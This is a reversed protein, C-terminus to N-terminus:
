FGPKSAEGVFISYPYLHVRNIQTQFSPLRRLGYERLYTRHHVTFTTQANNKLSNTERTKRAAILLSPSQSIWAKLHLGDEIKKFVRVFPSDSNYTFPMWLFGAMKEIEFGAWELSTRYEDASGINYEINYQQHVRRRLLVSLHNRWSNKNMEAIMFLGNQALLSNIKGFLRALSVSKIHKISDIALAVDFYKLSEFSLIDSHIGEIDLQSREKLLDIAEKSIDIVTVKHGLSALPIALRGNGGGIDLIRLGGARLLNQIFGLQRETKYRGMENNYVLPSNMDYEYSM